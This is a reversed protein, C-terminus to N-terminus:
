IEGYVLADLVFIKKSAKNYIVDLITCPPLTTTLQLFQMGNKYFLSARKRDDEGVSLSCRIGLLLLKCDNSLFRIIKREGKPCPKILFDEIDDPKNMMWESLMLNNRFAVNAKRHAKPYNFFEKLDRQGAFREDRQRRQDELLQARRQSQHEKLQGTNKYLDRLHTM